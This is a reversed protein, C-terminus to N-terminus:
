TYLIQRYYLLGLNLGQTRFIGQLLSHSGVGTNKDLSDWPCLVQRAITWTTVTLCLQPLLVEWPPSSPRSGM